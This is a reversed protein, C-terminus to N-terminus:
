EFMEKKPKVVGLLTTPAKRKRNRDWYVYGYGATIVAFVLATLRKMEQGRGNVCGQKHAKRSKPM